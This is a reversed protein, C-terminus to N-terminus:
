RRLRTSDSNLLFSLAIVVLVILTVTIMTRGEVAPV